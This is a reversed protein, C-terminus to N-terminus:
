WKANGKFGTKILEYQFDYILKHKEKNSIGIGKGAYKNTIDQIQNLGNDQGDNDGFGFIDAKFNVCRLLPLNSHYTVVIYDRATLNEFGELSTLMNGTFDYGRASSFKVGKISTLGNHKITIWMMAVAPMGEISELPNEECKFTDVHLPAGVLNKLHNNNCNITVNPNLSPLGKLSILENRWCNFYKGRVVKPAYDFNALKNNSCDFNGGVQDPAGDLTVLQNDSCIFAREAKNFRVPLKTYGMNELLKCDNFVTLLGNEDVEVHGRYNFNEYFCNRIESDTRLDVRNEKIIEHYRVM